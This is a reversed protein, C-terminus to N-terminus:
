RALTPPLCVPGLVAVDAGAISVGLSKLIPSVVANELPVLLPNVALAVLGSVAGGVATSLGLSTAGVHQSNAWTFPPSFSKTTPPVATLGLGVPAGLVTLSLGTLSTQVTATATSSPGISACAVSALTLTGAAGTVGLQVPVLGLLNARISVSIQGNTASTGVPGFAISPTSVVQATFSVDAIGAPIGTTLNSSVASGQRALFLEGQLLSLANVSAAAFADADTTTVKLFDGAKMAFGSVSGALASRYTNVSATAATNGKTNLASALISLQQGYTTSTKLFSDADASGAAVVLDGLTVNADALGQWSVVSLNIASGMGFASLVGNLM